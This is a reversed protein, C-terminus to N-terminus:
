AVVGALGFALAALVFFAFLSYMADRTRVFVILMFLVRFSPTLIILVIGLQILIAPRRLAQEPWARFLSPISRYVSDAGRFTSFDPAASPNAARLSWAVGLLITAGAALTTLSLVRSVGNEFRSAPPKNM